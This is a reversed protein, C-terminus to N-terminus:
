RGPRDWGASARLLKDLDRKFKAPDPNVPARMMWEGMPDVLYVHDELVHGEGPQLWAAVATRSSRLVTTPPQQLAQRLAEPIPQDDVVLWVKDIRDSDRGTMERLQRQLYLRRECAGECRGPGVVVLLWQGKLSSPSVPQGDLTALPLAPPISRTPQILTSYNTRAQPRIVFYTFYSAVVPAACVALVALMKWRGGRTRRVGEDQLHPSPMSHVTLELPQPAVDPASSNSGSM